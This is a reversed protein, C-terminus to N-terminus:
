DHHNSLWDRSTTELGDLLSNIVMDSRINNIMALVFIPFLTKPLLSEIHEFPDWTDLIEDMTLDQSLHSQLQDQLKYLYSAKQDRSLEAFDKTSHIEMDM